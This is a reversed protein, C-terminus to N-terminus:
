REIGLFMVGSRDVIKGFIGFSWQASARGPAQGLEDMGSVPLLTEPIRSGTKRNMRVGHGSGATRGTRRKM